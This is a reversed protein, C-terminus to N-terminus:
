GLKPANIRITSEQRRYGIFRGCLRCNARFYGPRTPDPKEELDLPPVHPACNAVGVPLGAPLRPADPPLPASPVAPRAWAAQLEALLDTAPTAPAPPM